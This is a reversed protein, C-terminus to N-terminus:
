QDGLKICKDCFQSITPMLKNSKEEYPSIIIGGLGLVRIKNILYHLFKETTELSNYILLTSMSDLFLFNFKGSTAFKTITLSLEVLSQPSKLFSCNSNGTKNAATEGTSDIFYLKSMDIGNKKITASLSSYPINLSVYIGRLKMEVTLHNLLTLNVSHYIDPASSIICISKPDNLEESVIEKIEKANM